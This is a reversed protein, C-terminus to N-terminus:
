RPGTGRARILRSFGVLLAPGLALAAVALVAPLPLPRTGLLTNLMPVYVALLQLVASVLIALELGRGRWPRRGARSRLALAVGLQALGLALFVSTQRHAHLPVAVASAALSVVAIAAAAWAIQRLLGNGLITERPSRPPSKM